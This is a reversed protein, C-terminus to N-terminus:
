VTTGGRDGEALKGNAVVSDALAVSKMVDVGVWNTEKLKGVIVVPKACGDSMKM